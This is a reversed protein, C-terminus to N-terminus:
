FSFLAALVGSALILVDVTMPPLFPNCGNFSGGNFKSGKPVGIVDL